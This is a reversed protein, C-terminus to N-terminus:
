MGVLHLVVVGGLTLGGYVFALVKVTDRIRPTIREQVPTAAEASYLQTAGFGALPAIAVFLVIIGIGGIWQSLSRWLLLAPSLEEPTVTAAGTTTFGAMSNFFADVPGMLGSLIFPLAGVLVVGLWCVVVMLFMSQRSVYGRPQRRTPYYLLAGLALVIVSPLWFVWAEDPAKLLSYAAPVLMAAGGASILIALANLILRLHLVKM